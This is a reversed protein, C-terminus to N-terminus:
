QLGKEEIIYKEIKEKKLFLLQLHPDTLSSGALCLSDYLYVNKDRQSFCYFAIM